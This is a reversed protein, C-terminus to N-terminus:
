RRRTKTKATRKTSPLYGMLRPRRSVSLFAATEEVFATHQGAIWSRYDAFEASARDFDLLTASALKIFTPVVGPESEDLAFRQPIPMDGENGAAGRRGTLVCCGSLAAERPIRDRGPHEGFDIYLKASSLLKAVGEASLGEIPVFELQGHSAEILRMTFQRGKRPNYLVVDRKPVSQRQTAGEVFADSLYDSLMMSQVKRERLFQRAYYSQTLHIVSADANCLMSLLAPDHAPVTPPSGLAVFFNDVSLWWLARRARALALLLHAGTEPAVVISESDDPIQSLVPVDYHRYEPMVTHNGLPYYCIAADWSQGRAASVLQHLAEPGGSVLGFPCLVVLRM